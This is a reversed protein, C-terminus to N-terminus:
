HTTCVYMSCMTVTETYEAKLIKKVQIFLYKSSYINKWRVIHNINYLMLIEKNYSMLVQLHSRFYFIAM